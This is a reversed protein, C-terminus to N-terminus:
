PMVVVSQTSESSDGEDDEVTLTVTHTGAAFTHRVVAGSDSSGDGFDWDYSVITGDTDESAGADLVVDLPAV